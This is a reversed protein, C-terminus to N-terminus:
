WLTPLCPTRQARQADKLVVARMVLALSRASATSSHSCWHPWVTSSRLCESWLQRGM